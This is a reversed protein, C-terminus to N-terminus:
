VSLRYLPVELCQNKLIRMPISHLKQGMTNNLCPCEKVSCLDHSLVTMRQFYNCLIMNAFLFGRSIGSPYESDVLAPMDNASSRQGMAM